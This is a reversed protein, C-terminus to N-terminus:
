NIRRDSEQDGIRTRQDSVEARQGRLVLVRKVMNKVNQFVLQKLWPFLEDNWREPHINLMLRDPLIDLNDIIQQTTKFYFNHKAEAKDRINSKKNNWKRGTETFYAFDYWDIDFGPDGIIGLDRYNYKKGFADRQSWIMKNDFPSLPSGHSCITKIDAVERMKELNKCFSEYALDILIENNFRDAIDSQKISKNNEIASQGSGVASKKNRWVLDVDEYHYGVEHGLEAIKKIVSEDFSKGFADRVPVIRFYYTGCIGLENEIQATALSNGPMWAVDHKLILVKKKNGRFLNPAPKKDKIKVVYEGFPLFSYNKDKLKTLLKIYNPLNFDVM